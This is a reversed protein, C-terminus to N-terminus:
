MQKKSLSSEEFLCLQYSVSNVTPTIELLNKVLSMMERGRENRNNWSCFICFWSRTFGYEKLFCNHIVIWSFHLCKSLAFLSKPMKFTAKGSLLTNHINHWASEPINQCAWIDLSWTRFIRCWRIFHYNKLMFCCITFFNSHFLKCLLSCTFTFFNATRLEPSIFYM